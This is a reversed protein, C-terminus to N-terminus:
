RKGKGKGNLTKMTTVNFTTTSRTVNKTLIGFTEPEFRSGSAPLGSLRNGHTKKVSGASFFHCAWSRKM